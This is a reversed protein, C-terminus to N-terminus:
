KPFMGAHSTRLLLQLRIHTKSIIVCIKCKKSQPWTLPSRIKVIKKLYLNQRFTYACLILKLNRVFVSNQNLFVVYKGKLKTSYSCTFWSFTAKLIKLKQPYQSRLLRNFALLKVTAATCLVIIRSWHRNCPHSLRIVTIHIWSWSFVLSEQSSQCKKRLTHYYYCPENIVVSKQSM